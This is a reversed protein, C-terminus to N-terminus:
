PNVYVEVPGTTLATNSQNRKKWRAYVVSGPTVPVSLNVLGNSFSVPATVQPSTMAPNTDYEVVANHAEADQLQIGFRVTESGAQRTRLQFPM